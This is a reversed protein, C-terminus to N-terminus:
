TAVPAQKDGRVVGGFGFERGFREGAEEQMARKAWVLGEAVAIRSYVM